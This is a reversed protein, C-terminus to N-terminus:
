ITQILGGYIPLLYSCHNQNWTNMKEIQGRFSTYAVDENFYKKKNKPKPKQKKSLHAIYVFHLLHDECVDTTQM